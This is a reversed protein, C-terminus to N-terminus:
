KEIEKAYDNECEVALKQISQSPSLKETDM